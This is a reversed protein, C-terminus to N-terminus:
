SDWDRSARQQESRRLDRELRQQEMKAALQQLSNKQDKQSSQHACEEKLRVPTALSQEASSIEGGHGCKEPAPPIAKSLPVGQKAFDSTSDFRNSGTVRVRGDLQPKQQDLRAFRDSLNASERPLATPDLIITLADRERQSLALRQEVSPPSQNKILHGFRQRLDNQKEQSSAFAAKVGPADAITKGEERQVKQDVLDPSSCISATPESREAKREIGRALGGTSGQGINRDRRHREELADAISSETDIISRNAAWKERQIKGLEAALEIRRNADGLETRKPAERWEGLMEEGNRYLPKGREIATAAPGMHKTPERDLEQAKEQDGVERAAKRQDALSRHDIRVDHGARELAMNAMDGWTRRLDSLQAKGNPLGQAKLDRDARDYEAKQGFGEPGLERSTAQVHIHWNRNDGKTGPAHFDLQVAVGYRNVVEQAFQRGLEKRQERSLEHPLSVEWERAVRANKRMNGDKNRESDQAGNWLGQPHTAWDPSSKPLVVESDERIIGGRRRYDYIEGTNHDELRAGARYASAAVASRGGGISQTTFHYIAM